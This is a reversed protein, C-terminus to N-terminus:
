AAALRQAREEIDRYGPGVEALLERYLGLAQAHQGLAELTLALEYALEHGSEESSPPIEAVWELCTLAEMAAGQERYIRALRSGAPSRLHPACMAEELARAAEELRHSEILRTAEVFREEAVAAAEELLGDRFDQFAQDADGLDSLLEALPGTTAPAAARIEAQSGEPKPRGDRPADSFDPRLIKVPQRVSAPAAEAPRAPAPAPAPAPVPADSGPIPRMEVDTNPLPPFTRGHERAVARVRDLLAHHSESDPYRAILDLATYYAQAYREARLCADALRVQAVVLQIGLGGDVGLDILKELAAIHHPRGALFDEVIAVAARYDHQAAAADAEAEMTHFEDAAEITGSEAQRPPQEPGNAPPHEPPRVAAQAPEAPREPKAPSM